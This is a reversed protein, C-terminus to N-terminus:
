TNPITRTKWHFSDRYCYCGDFKRSSFDLDITLGGDFGMLGSKFGMLGSKFGMLGTNTGIYPFMSIRGTVVLWIMKQVFRSVDLTEQFLAVARQWQGGKENASIAANFSIVDRRLRTAPMAHFM